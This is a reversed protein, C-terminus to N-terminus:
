SSYKNVASVTSIMFIAFLLREVEDDKKPLKFLNKGYNTVLSWNNHKGSGNVNKFPKEHLLCVLDHEYATNRLVEM